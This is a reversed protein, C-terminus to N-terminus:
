SKIMEKLSNKKFATELGQNIVWELNEIRAILHHRQDLFDIDGHQINSAIPQVKLHVLISDEPWYRRFQRFAGMSSPLSPAGRRIWSDLITLQLATDLVLPETIWYSRIPNMMWEAPEKGRKSSVVWDYESQHLIQEIGQFDAGHFLYKPYISAMRLGNLSPATLGPKLGSISTIQPNTSPLQPVLLVKSQSCVFSKGQQATLLEVPVIYGERTKVTKGVRATIAIEEEEGLTIGKMIKLQDVGFVILGPNSHIAAHCLWELHIVMPIVAKGNLVHSRLFPHDSISVIREFAVSTGLAGTSTSIPEMRAETTNQLSLHNNESNGDSINKSITDNGEQDFANEVVEKNNNSRAVAVVEVPKNSNSSLALERLLFAGGQEPSICGIGEQAFMNRLAPTVMGGDWPGWNISLIRCFPRKRNEKQAIKNLAENAAAYALQGIRGLRATTSSFLVIGKLHDQIPHQQLDNLLGKIGEVKTDYVMQFQTDTLDEIRRDALIGAGHIIGDLRGYRNHIENLIQQRDQVRQVDTQLYLAKSGLQEIQKITQRIERQAVVRMFEKELERPSLLMKDGSLNKLLASKIESLQHLQKLWAPEEEPVPTRGTLVWNCKIKRALVMISAATVGRAGGTVLVTDGEKWPLEEESTKLSTELLDLRYRNDSTIGIEIQGFSLIEQVIEEPNEQIMGNQLDIIKISLKTWERALSKMMGALSGNEPVDSEFTSVGFTGGFETLASIFSLKSEAKHVLSCCARLYRFARGSIDETRSAVLVLGIMEESYRSPPTTAWTFFQTEYGVIELSKILPRLSDEEDGVIYILGNAPRRLATRNQTTISISQPHLIWRQVQGALSNNTKWFSDAEAPISEDVELKVNNNPEYESKEMPDSTLDLPSSIVTSQQVSSDISDSKIVGQQLFRAVEQLTQFSGLQDPKVTPAQPFQEQLASFIEVRKISDIGLDSDMSMDLSLMEPPYGTKESIVKIVMNAVVSDDVEAIRNQTVIQNNSVIELSPSNMAISKSLHDVIQELTHLKTLDEAKVPPLHPLKDQLASLIEVRKISDIGLDSDMTMQLHLMEPPYGTKDSVIQLLIKELTKTDFSPAIEPNSIFSSKSTSDTELVLFDVIDQLTNFKGLYEPKIPPLGPLKEQLASLIEVRKISDIGLDNDMSMDLSLMESPYGTKDSIIQLLIVSFQEKPFSNKSPAEATTDVSNPQFSDESKAQITSGSRSLVQENGHSREVVPKASNSSLFSRPDYDGGNENIKEKKRTISADSRTTTSTINIAPQVPSFASEDMKPLLNGLNSDSNPLGLLALLTRQAVEQQDLFQKHLLATQEQLQLFAKLGQYNFDHMQQNVNSPESSNMLQSKAPSSSNNLNKAPSLKDNSLSKSQNSDRSVSSSTISPTISSSITPSVSRNNELSTSNARSEKTSSNFSSNSNNSRKLENKNQAPSLDYKNQTFGPNTEQSTETRKKNDQPKASDITNGKVEMLVVSSAVSSAASITRPPLPKPHVYNAGCIPFQISNSRQIQDPPMLQNGGWLRLDIPHGAVTLQALVSALDYLGSRKGQSSDLTLIEPKSQEKEHSNKNLSDTQSAFYDSVIDTVLRSLVNGPGVEIFTQVGDRLMKQIQQVFEVGSGLQKALLDKKEKELVPYIDGITNSYVNISKSSFPTNDLIARFNPVVATMAPSHFAASVPLIVARIGKAKLDEYALQVGKQDGSLVIQNPSNHNAIVLSSSTEQLWDVIRKRDSFVAIMSGPIKQGANDMIQGRNAAIFYLLDESFTEGAALATLEGLSHGAFVDALVGFSQLIKWCGFEITALAPQAIRTQKLRNFQAEKEENKFAPIPYIYDSLCELPYLKHFVDNGKQLSDLLSPFTCSLDRLMGVYQSGQGPFLIATKKQASKKDLESSVFVGESIANIEGSQRNKLKSILLDIKKTVAREIPQDNKQFVLVARCPLERQFKQCADFAQNSLESWSSKPIKNLPAELEAFNNAAIPYIVVSDDWDIHLKQPSYEELVAHFNSGGFGFASVGARRPHDKNAVWPRATANVYFPSDLQMLPPLPEKVKITPPLTKSYLALATKILGAAGAAAKTHGIQSKISGLACFPSRNGAQSSDSEQNQAEKFVELLATVEVLDGVKTGTGHGEILEISAPSIKASQYANRLAKMQGAAVPAYISSGKGDSSSGIGRIVAYITNKDREADALRKLVLIGLGEGLITGDGNADYPSANGSASLAPTKSFCMYMFIDNFTDVGGTVVMDSTGAALELAALHVAGLSSACAADIVCNTGGLNLRNAIRGAVVNGLLGPFSNEQWDVYSSSIDQIIQDRVEGHIGARDLAKKWRPHGLRAGLPIVLEQTGTVGLIVSVRERNFQNKPDYGADILAQKAAVLGLLQATDIAELDKPAIGFDIPHFPYPDLFGGRRAYTMDQVKPDADFYDDISWHTSPIERILDKGSCINAWLSQRNNSGPFLCGIGIIALPSFPRRFETDVITESRTDPGNDNKNNSKEQM